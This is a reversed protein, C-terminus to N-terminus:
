KESRYIRRIEGANLLRMFEAKDAYDLSQFLVREDTVSSCTQVGASGRFVDGVKPEPRSIIELNHIYTVDRYNENQIWAEDKCVALVNMVRGSRSEVVDGVQPPGQIEPKEPEPKNAWKTLGYCCPRAFQDYTVGEHNGNHGKRLFCVAENDGLVAGCYEPESKKEEDDTMARLGAAICPGIEESKDLYYAAVFQDIQKETFLPKSM